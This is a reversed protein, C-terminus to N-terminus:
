QEDDQGEISKWMEDENYPICYKYEHQQTKYKYLTDTFMKIFIDPTWRWTEADRVLVRQGREFEPEPKTRSFHLYEKGIFCEFPRISNVHLSTLSEEVANRPDNDWFWGRIGLAGCIAFEEFDKRM